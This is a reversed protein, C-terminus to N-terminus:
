GVAMWIARYVGLYVISIKLVYQSTGAIVQSEGWGSGADVKDGNEQMIVKKAVIL